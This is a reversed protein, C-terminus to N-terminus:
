FYNFNNVKGQEKKYQNMIQEVHEEIFIDIFSEVNDTVSTYKDWDISQLIQAVSRERPSAM